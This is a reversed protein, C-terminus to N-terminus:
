KDTLIHKLVQMTSEKFQDFTVDVQSLQLTEWVRSPPGHEKTRNMQIYAVGMVISYTLLSLLPATDKKIEGEDIAEQILKTTGDLLRYERYKAEIPGTRSSPPAEIVNFMMKYKDYDRDAFDLFHEYLKIILDCKSGKHNKIIELNEEKFQNYFKNRIAIWLERKSEIYNYLNNKTMGLIEALNRMSFGETGKKLFLQKGAELIMEFKEDKKDESRARTQKLKPAM